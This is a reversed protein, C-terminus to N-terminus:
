LAKLFPWKSVREFLDLIVFRDSRVVTVYVLRLSGNYLPTFTSMLNVLLYENTLLNSKQGNLVNWKVHSVVIDRIAKVSKVIIWLKKGM